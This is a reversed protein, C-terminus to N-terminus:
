CSGSEHAVLRVVLIAIKDKNWEQRPSADEDSDPAEISSTHNPHELNEGRMVHFSIM